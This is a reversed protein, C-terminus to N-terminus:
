NLEHREICEKSGSFQFNRGFGYFRRPILGGLDNCPFNASSVQRMDELNFGGIDVKNVM